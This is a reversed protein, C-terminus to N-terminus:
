IGRRFTPPATSDFLYASRVLRKGVFFFITTFYKFIMGLRAFSGQFCGFFLVRLPFQTLNQSLYACRHIFFNHQSDLIRFITSVRSSECISARIQGVQTVPDFTAYIYALDQVYGQIRTHTHSYLYFVM